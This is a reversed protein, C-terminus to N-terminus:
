DNYKIQAKTQELISDFDKNFQEALDNVALWGMAEIIKNNPVKLDEFMKNRKTQEAELFLGRVEDKLNFELARLIERSFFHYSGNLKIYDRLYLWFMREFIFEEKLLFNDLTNYLEIVDNLANKESESSVISKLKTIGKNARNLKTRLKM